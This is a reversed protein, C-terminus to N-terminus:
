KRVLLVAQEMHGTYPFCDALVAQVPKYSEQLIELDRLQTDPNCSIYLVLPAPRQKAILKCLGPSMGARPPDAVIVTSDLELGEPPKNLDVAQFNHQLASDQFRKTAQDVASDVFEFGRVQRLQPWRQVLISSLVGAGCYLDTLTPITESGVDGTGKDLDQALAEEFYSKGNELIRDFLNGFAVPNPQFFSDYPVFFDLNSLSDTYGPNGLLPEGGPTCSLEQGPETVTEVISFSFGSSQNLQAISRILEEQFAPAGQKGSTTLVIVGSRPGIRLTAYKLWGTLTERKWGTGPHKKLLETVLGLIEEGPKRLVPCEQLPLVTEFDQPPRLGMWTDEVAFDMRNRFHKLEPAPLLEPSLGYSSEMAERISRSKWEWQFNYDLHRARCGGCQGAHICGPDASLRIEEPTSDAKEIHMVQFKSKRGKRLIRFQVLDGPLAFPVSYKKRKFEMEGELKENLRQVPLAM